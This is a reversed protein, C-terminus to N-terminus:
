KMHWGGNVDITQGTVYSAKESLLFVVVSAVEEPKGIRALPIKRCIDKRQRETWHRTAPTDIAGPLVANVRIGHAALVRALSRTMGILGAKATTFAVKPMGIRAAIASVNVIAGEWGKSLMLEVVGKACFFAANLNLQLSAYWEEGTVSLIGSGERSSGVNNVLHTISLGRLRIDRIFGQIFAPDRLDGAYVICRSGRREIEGKVKTLRGKERAVLVVSSKPYAAAYELAISRGIGTSGGTVVLGVNPRDMPHREKKTM